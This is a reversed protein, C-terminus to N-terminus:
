GDGQQSQADAPAANEGSQSQGDPATPGPAAQTNGADDHGGRQANGSRQADPGSGTSDGTADPSRRGTSGEGPSSLAPRPTVHIAPAPQRPAAMHRPPVRTVPPGVAPALAGVALASGSVAVTTELRALLASPVLAAVGTKLRARARSVLQRAAVGSTGLEAAIEDFPRGELERMVIADRQRDPLEGLAGVLRALQQRRELVSEVSEGALEEERVPQPRPGTRRSLDVSANLVIRRLWPRLELVPKRRRLAVYAQLLAQQLVDEAREAPGAARAVRLLYAGHRLVIAEFASEHGTHALAVLTSDRQGKLWRASAHRLLATRLSRPPGAEAPGGEGLREQLSM